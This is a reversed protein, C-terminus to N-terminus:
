HQIELIGTKDREQLAFLTRLIAHGVSGLDVPLQVILVLPVGVRRWCLVVLPKSFFDIVKYM